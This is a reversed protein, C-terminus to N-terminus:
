QIEGPFLRRFIMSTMLIIFFAIGVLLSVAVYTELQSITQQNKIESLFMEIYISIVFCFITFMGCLLEAISLRRLAVKEPPKRNSSSKELFSAPVKGHRFSEKGDDFVTVKTKQFDVFIARYHWKEIAKAVHRM